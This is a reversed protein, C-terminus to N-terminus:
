NRLKDRLIQIYREIVENQEPADKYGFLGFAFQGIRQFAKKDGNELMSLLDERLINNQLIGDELLQIQIVNSKNRPLEDIHTGFIISIDDVHVPVGIFIGEGRTSLYLEDRYAQADIEMIMPFRSFSEDGRETRDLRYKAFLLAEFLTAGCATIKKGSGHVDKLPWYTPVGSEVFDRLVQHEFWGQNDARYLKGPKEWDISAYDLKMLM